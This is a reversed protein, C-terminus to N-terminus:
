SHSKQISLPRNNLISEIRKAVCSMDACNILTKKYLVEFSKKFKKVFVEVAGNLWQGGATAFKWTGLVMHRHEKQLLKRNTIPLRGKLM